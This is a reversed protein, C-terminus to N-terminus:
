ILFFCFLFFSFYFVNLRWLLGNPSNGRVIISNNQDNTAVVGPYSTIARVPDFFNAPMRMTKEISLSTLGPVLSSGDDSPSAVVQVEDLITSSPSLSVNVIAERGAIVLLEDTVTSYGTFSIAIHYRGIPVQISFIGISDTAAGQDVNENVIKVSAGALVAGTVKNSVRGKVTQSIEQAQTVFCCVICATLSLIKKLM